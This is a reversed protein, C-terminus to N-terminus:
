AVEYSFIKFAKFLISFLKFLSQGLLKILWHSPNLKFRVNTKIIHHNSNKISTYTPATLGRRFRSITKSSGFDRPRYLNTIHGIYEVLFDHRGSHYTYYIRVPQSCLMRLNYAGHKITVHHLLTYLYVMKRAQLM